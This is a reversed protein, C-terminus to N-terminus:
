DIILVKEVGVCKSSNYKITYINCVLVVCVIFYLFTYIESRLKLLHFKYSTKYTFLGLPHNSGCCNKIPRFTFQLM